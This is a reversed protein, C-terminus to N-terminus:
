VGNKAKQREAANGSASLVIGSVDVVVGAFGELGYLQGLGLLFDIGSGVIESKLDVVLKVFAGL